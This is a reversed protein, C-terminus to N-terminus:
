DELLEPNEIVKKNRKNAHYKSHESNTMLVLNDIRNDITNENKHHVVENENLYRGIRKEMVLRHEAIYIKRSGIANPHEPIYIYKYKKSIICSKYAGRKNGIRLKTYCRKSCCKANLGDKIIKEVEKNCVDCKFLGYKYNRKSNGKCKQGTEKILEM